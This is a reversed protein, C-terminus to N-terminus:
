PPPKLDTFVFGDREVTEGPTVPVPRALMPGRDVFTHLEGHEGCADVDPPLEDLLAADFRRGAFRRDLQAPDLCSLWGRLGAELMERALATTDRGWLPFLPELGTGQLQQERYRRVDDLHLDGHALAEVGDRRARHLAEAMRAEYVANTCPRPLEVEVLPLGVAAAQARVLARRVGHMAVRSADENLTTLLGVVEVDSRERLLHLTWAADKGSSWSLLVRKARHRGM